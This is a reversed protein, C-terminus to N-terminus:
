LLSLIYLVVAGLINALIFLGCGSAVLCSLEDGMMRFWVGFFSEDKSM